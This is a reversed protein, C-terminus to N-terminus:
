KIVIFHPIIELIIYTKGIFISNQEYHVPASVTKAPSGSKLGQRNSSINVCVFLKIYIYITCGM